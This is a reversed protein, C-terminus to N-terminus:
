VWIRELPAKLTVDMNITSVKEATTTAECTLNDNIFSDFADVTCECKFFEIFYPVISPLQRGISKHFLILLIFSFIKSKMASFFPHFQPIKLTTNLAM